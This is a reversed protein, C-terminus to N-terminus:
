SRRGGCYLRYFIGPLKRVLFMLWDAAAQRPIVANMM